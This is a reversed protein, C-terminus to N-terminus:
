RILADIHGVHVLDQLLLHLSELSGLLLILSVLLLSFIIEALSKYTFVGRFTISGFFVLLSLTQVGVMFEPFLSLKRNLYRHIFFIFYFDFFGFFAFLSMLTSLYFDFGDFMGGVCFIISIFITVVAGTFFLLRLLLTSAKLETMEKSVDKYLLKRTM